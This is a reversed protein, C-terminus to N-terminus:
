VDFLARLARKPGKLLLGMLCNLPCFSRLGGSFITMRTDLIDRSTVHSNVKVLIVTIPFIGDISQAKISM